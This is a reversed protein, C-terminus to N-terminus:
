RGKGVASERMQRPSKFPGASSWPIGEHLLHWSRCRFFKALVSCSKQIDCNINVAFFLTFNISYVSWIYHFIMFRLCNERCWYFGNETHQFIGDFLDSQLFRPNTKDDAPFESRGLKSVGIWLNRQPNIRECLTRWAFEQQVSNWFLTGNFDFIIEKMGKAVKDSTVGM